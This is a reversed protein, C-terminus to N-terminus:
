AQQLVYEIGKHLNFFTLVNLKIGLSVLTQAIEPRIGVIICTSGLMSAAETAQILHNAVYTDVVPVGTIDLLVYEARYQVIGDLLNGKIIEARDDSINGILPLVCIKNFVPIMPATLERVAERQKMYAHHWKEACDSVVNTIVPDFWEDVEEYLEVIRDKSSEENVILKLISRRFQQFAATLYNMCWDKELLKGYFQRLNTYSGKDGTELSRFTLDFVEQNLEEDWKYDDLHPNNMFQISEKWDIYLEQKHERLLHITYSNM